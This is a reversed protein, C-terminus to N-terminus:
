SPHSVAKASGPCRGRSPSSKGRGKHLTVTDQQFTEQETSSGMSPPFKAGAICCFCCCHVYTLLIRYVQVAHAPGSTRAKDPHQPTFRFCVDFCSLAVAQGWPYQQGWPYHQGWPSAAGLDQELGLGALQPQVLPGVTCRTGPVLCATPCLQGPRHVLCHM